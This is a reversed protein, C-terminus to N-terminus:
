HKTKSDRGAANELAATHEILHLPVPLLVQDADSLATAFNFSADILLDFAASPNLGSLQHAAGRATGLDQHQYAALLSLGVFEDACVHRCCHPYFSIPRLSVDRLVRIWYQLESLLLRGSRAGLVSSFHRWATEWCQIDGHEYGAMWCRVGTLVLREAPRLVLYNASTEFNMRITM